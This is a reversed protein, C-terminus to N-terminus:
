FGYLNIASLLQSFVRSGNGRLKPLNLLAHARANRGYRLLHAIESSDDSGKGISKFNLDLGDSIKPYVNTQTNFIILKQNVISWM